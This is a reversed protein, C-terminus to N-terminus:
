RTVLNILGVSECRQELLVAHLLNGVIQRFHELEYCCKFRAAKIIITKNSCVTALRNGDNVRYCPLLLKNWVQRSVVPFLCYRM